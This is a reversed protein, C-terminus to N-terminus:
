YDKGHIRRGANEVKFYDNRDIVLYDCKELKLTDQLFQLADEVDLKGCTYLDFRLMAPFVDDWIHMSAHSTEIGVTGTLGRNGSQEVYYARPPIVIKMNVKQILKTFWDELEMTNTLPNVTTANVLLHKHYVM